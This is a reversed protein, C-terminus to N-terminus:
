LDALARKAADRDSFAVKSNLARELSQRASDRAGSKLEAMALHYLLEPAQPAKDVSKQLANVADAYDGRKYFVWGRTDLFAANRSSAFRETLARARDLSSRDSRYTVLLMALNNASIASDADRKLLGEYEAIAEETRGLREYLGALNSVLQPADNSAKIGQQLATIAEQNHGAAVEAAALNIYPTTWAPNLAIADRFSAIAPDTRKLTALVEGKLNHPLPNRPFQAIIKDLRAIAQDPHQQTLDLRVLATVPDVAAPAVAV